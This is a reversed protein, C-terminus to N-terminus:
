LLIVVPGDPPGSDLVDFTLGARTFQEMPM